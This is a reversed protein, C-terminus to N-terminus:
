STAWSKTKVFSKWVNKCIKGQVVIAKKGEPGQVEAVILEGDRTEGWRKPGCRLGYLVRNLKWYVGEPILGLKVLLGPPKVLIIDDKADDFESYLFATAVDLSGLSWQSKSAMALLTRM